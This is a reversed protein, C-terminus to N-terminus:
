KWKAELFIGKKEFRIDKLEMYEFVQTLQKVQGLHAVITNAKGVEVISSLKPQSVQIFKLIGKIILDTGNGNSYSLIIDRGIAKEVSFRVGVEKTVFIMKVPMTISITKADVSHMVVNKNYKKAIFSQIENFSLELRM